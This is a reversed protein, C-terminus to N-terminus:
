IFLLVPLRGSSSDASTEGPEPNKGQKGDRKKTVEKAKMLRFYFDRLDSVRRITIELKAVHFRASYESWSDHSRRPLSCLLGRSLSTLSNATSM